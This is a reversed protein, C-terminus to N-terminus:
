QNCYTNLSASLGLVDSVDVRADTTIDFRRDYGYDGYLINLIPIYRLVDSVDSATDNTNDLPWADDNPNEPCRDLSDSGIHNEATDSFGDNDDDTDTPNMIGDQDPRDTNTDTCDKITDGDSDPAGEDVQTDADNDKGDCVEPTSGEPLTGAKPCGDNVYGDSDSDAADDCQSGSEATSGVTVCGDNVKTDNAPDDNIANLCQGNTPNSGASIEKADTFGDGDDDDDLSDEVGDGDTDVVGLTAEDWNSTTSEGNVNFARVAYCYSGDALGVGYWNDAYTAVNVTTSDVLDFDGWVAQVCSEDARWVEYGLESSVNSWSLSVSGPGAPTASLSGPTAPVTGTGQPYLYRVGNIDDTCPTRQVSGWTYSPKMVPCNGSPPQSSHGLGVVHGEEHLMVTPLDVEVSYPDVTWDPGFHDTDIEIDTDTFYGTTPNYCMYTVALTSSGHGTDAIRWSIDNTSNCTLGDGTRTTDGAFRFAVYASSVNQWAGLMGIVALRTDQASLQAPRYTNPNVYYRVPIDAPAWEALTTYEQPPLPVGGGGLPEEQPPLDGRVAQGVKAEFTGLALDLPEVIGASSVLFKSQFGETLQLSGDSAGKLFVVVREGASFQPSTGVRMGIDGIEGGPVTITMEGAPTGSPAKLHAFTTLVVQTVIARGDASPCSRFGKVMGEVVHSSHDTLEDLTVPIVMAYAGGTATSGQSVFPTCDRQALPPYAGAAGAASELGPVGAIL